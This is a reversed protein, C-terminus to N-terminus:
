LSRLRPPEAEDTSSHGIWSMELPAAARLAILKTHRLHHEGTWEVFEFTNRDGARSDAATRSVALLRRRVESDPPGRRRRRVRRIGPRRHAWRRPRLHRTRLRPALWQVVPGGRGGGGHRRRRVFMQEVVDEFDHSPDASLDGSNRATNAVAVAQGTSDTNSEDGRLGDVPYDDSRLYGLM